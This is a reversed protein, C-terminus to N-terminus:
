RTPAAVPRPRQSARVVFLEIALPGELRGTKIEQDIRLLEGMLAVLEEAQFQQAQRVLKDAVFRHPTGLGKLLADGRLGQAEALDKATILLRLQRAIMSLLYLENAGDDLLRQLERLADPRSRMGLADVLAFINAEQAASVLLDVADAEIRGAYGAYAALKELEGDLLRLDSGVHAALRSLAERTIAVGKQEARKAIWRQVAGADLASFERVHGEPQKAALKVIPHSRELARREVFVLRTTPPLNPLYDALKRAEEAMRASSEQEQDKQGRSRGSLRQLYDEVIILRRSTLFPLTNCAEILETLNLNRGDLVAINLDGMGDEAIQAKLRAVEESRSFEEEGHLIYFM